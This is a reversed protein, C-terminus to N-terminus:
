NSINYLFNQVSEQYSFEELNKRISEIIKNHASGFLDKLVQQLYDPHEYCDFIYCHYKTELEHLVRELVPTGFEILSKEIALGVLAKKVMNSDIATKKEVGTFFRLM